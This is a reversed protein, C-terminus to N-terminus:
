ECAEKGKVEKWEPEANMEEIVGMRGPQATISTPELRPEWEM